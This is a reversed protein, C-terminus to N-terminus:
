GVMVLRPWFSFNHTVAFLCCSQPTSSGTNAPLRWKMPELVAIPTQEAVHSHTFRGLWRVFEWYPVFGVLRM